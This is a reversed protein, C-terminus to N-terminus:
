MTTSVTSKIPSKSGTYTEKLSKVEKYLRDAAISVQPLQSVGVGLATATKTTSSFDMLAQLVRDICEVTSDGKAIPELKAIVGNKVNSPIGLQIRPSNVIFIYKEDKAGVPGVDFHISEIASTGVTKKSLIFVSDDKSNLIVRDSNLLVTDKEYKNFDTFGM